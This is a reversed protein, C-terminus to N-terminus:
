YQLLLSLYQTVHKKELSVACLKKMSETFETFFCQNYHFAQREDTVNAYQSGSETPQGSYDMESYLNEPQTRM